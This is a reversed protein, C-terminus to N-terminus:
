QEQEPLSFWQGFEKECRRQRQSRWLSGVAVGPALISMGGVYCKVLWGAEPWMLALWGPVALVTLLNMVVHIECAKQGWARVRPWFSWGFETRHAQQCSPLPSGALREPSAPLSPAIPPCSEAPLHDGQPEGIMGDAGGGSPVHSSSATTPPAQLRVGQGQQRIAWLRHIFAKYRADNQLGILLMGWGWVMGALLWGTQGDQEFMGWGVGIPVALNVSHHMLYDLQVGDLSATGRLRALQGDVHDLLYWLQLLLAGLTWGGASGAAFAWAALLSVAWALSTVMNASVGWPALCWTIRLAAPRAIRRAMWTGVQQYDPKQCKQELEALSPRSSTKAPPFNNKM